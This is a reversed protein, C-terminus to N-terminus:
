SSPSEATHTSLIRGLVGNVFRGSEEGGYEKAIDVAENIAVKAPIDKRLLLEFSAMQLIALDVSSLDALSWQPAAAAIAADLLTQHELVGVVLEQAYSSLTNSPQSQGNDAHPLPHSPGLMAREYLSQMAVIRAGRRETATTLSDPM